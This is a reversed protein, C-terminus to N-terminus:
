CQGKAMRNLTPMPVTPEGDEIAVPAYQAKHVPLPGVQGPPPAIMWHNRGVLELPKRTTPTPPEALGIVVPAMAGTDRTKPLPTAPNRQRPTTPITNLQDIPKSLNAKYVLLQEEQCRPCILLVSSTLTKIRQKPTGCAECQEPEPTEIRRIADTIQRQSQALEKQQKEIASLEPLFRRAFEWITAM